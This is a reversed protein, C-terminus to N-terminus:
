RPGTEFHDANRKEARHPASNFTIAGVLLISSVAFSLLAFTAAERLDQRDSSRM